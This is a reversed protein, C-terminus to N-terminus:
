QPFQYTFLDGPFPDESLTSSYYHNQHRMPYNAKPCSTVGKVWGPSIRGPCLTHSHPTHPTQLKDCNDELDREKWMPPHLFFFFFFCGTDGPPIVRCKALWCHWLFPAIWNAFGKDAWWCWQMVHSSLWVNKECSILKKAQGTNLHTRQWKETASLLGNPLWVHSPQRSSPGLHLCHAFGTVRLKEATMRPINESCKMQWIGWMSEWLPEKKKKKPVRTSNM